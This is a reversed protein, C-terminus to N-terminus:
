KEIFVHVLSYKVMASADWVVCLHLVLFHLM